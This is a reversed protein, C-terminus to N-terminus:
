KNGEKKKKKPEEEGRPKIVNYVNENITLDSTKFSTAQRVNKVFAPNDMPYEQGVQADVIYVKKGGPASKDPRVEYTLSHGGGQKWQVDLMGFDGVESHELIKSENLSVSKRGKTISLRGSDVMQEVDDVSFPQGTEPNDFMEMRNLTSTGRKGPTWDDLTDPRAEVDYGMKRTLYSMTCYGCNQSYNPNRPNYKPNNVKEKIEEKETGVKTTDIMPLKDLIQKAANKVFSQRREAVKTQREAEKAYGIERAVKMSKQHNEFSKDHIESLKGGSLKDLFQKAKEAKGLITSDFKTKALDAAKEANKRETNAKMYDSQKRQEESVKNWPVPDNSLRGKAMKEDHRANYARTNANSLAKKQKGGLKEDYIYQWKGKIWERSLYKHGKREEGKAHALYNDCYDNRM